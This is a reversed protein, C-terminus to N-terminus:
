TRDAEVAPGALPAVARRSRRLPYRLQLSRDEGELGAVVLVDRCRVVGGELLPELLCADLVLEDGVLAGRVAEEVAALLIECGGGLIGPPSHELEDVLM